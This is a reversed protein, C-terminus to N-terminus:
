RRDFESFVILRELRQTSTSLRESGAAAMKMTMIEESCAARERERRLLIFICVAPSYTTARRLGVLYAAAHNFSNKLRRAGGTHAVCCV